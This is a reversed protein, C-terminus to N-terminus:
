KYDVKGKSRKAAHWVVCFIGLTFYGEFARIIKEHTNEL